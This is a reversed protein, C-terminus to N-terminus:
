KKAGPGAPQIQTMRGDMGLAGQSMGMMSCGQTGMFKQCGKMMETHCEAIPKDSRLCAVMQEHVTAMQARM